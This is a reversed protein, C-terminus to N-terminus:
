AFTLHQDTWAENYLAKSCCRTRRACGCFISLMGLASWIQLAFENFANWKMTLHCSWVLLWTRNIWDWIHIMWSPFFVWLFCLLCALKTVICSHELLHADTWKNLNKMQQNGGLIINKFKTHFINGITFEYLLNIRVRLSETFFLETWLQTPKGCNAM